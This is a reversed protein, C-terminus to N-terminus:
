ISGDPLRCSRSETPDRALLVPATKEAKSPWKGPENHESVHRADHSAKCNMLSSGSCIGLREQPSM